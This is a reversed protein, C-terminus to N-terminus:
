IMEKVDNNLSCKKLVEQYIESKFWTESYKYLYFSQDGVYWDADVYVSSMYVHM